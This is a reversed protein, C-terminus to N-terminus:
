KKKQKPSCADILMFISKCIYGFILLAVLFPVFFSSSPLWSHRLVLVVIEPAEPKYWCTYASGIDFQDLIIQQSHQKSAFSHDLGNGSTWSKHQVGAAQYGVLFDARYQHWMEGKVSLEKDIILCNATKFTDTLTKDPLMSQNYMSKLYWLCLGLVIVQGTIWFLRRGIDLANM